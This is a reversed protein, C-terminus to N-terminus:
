KRVKAYAAQVKKIAASRKSDDASYYDSDSKKVLEDIVKQSEEVSMDGSQGKNQIGDESFNASIASLIKLAEPNNGLDGFKDAAGEGGFKNLMAKTNSLNKDYNAGWEQRLQTEAKMRNENASKEISQEGTNWMNLYEGYIGEAQKQTLGNKHVLEAFGKNFEPTVQVKSHLEKPATFKYDDAKAPRGIKGYFENLEEPTAKESPLVVGKAGILKSLNVHGKAFEDVTKYKTINPDARLGEDSISNIWEPASTGTNQNQTDQTDGM